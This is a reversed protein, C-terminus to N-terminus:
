DPVVNYACVWSLTIFRVLRPGSGPAVKVRATKDQGYYTPPPTSM